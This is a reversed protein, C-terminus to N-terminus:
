ARERRLRKIGASVNQRAADPTTSMARAIDDYSRDEVFRMAVASRQKSPLRRVSEWLEGDSEAPQDVTAASAAAEDGLLPRRAADRQLDTAKNRAITLLWGRLNQADQLRPYARLAALFTEQFCDEADVSGVRRVLFRLVAGAHDDLLAEFPPLRHASRPARDAM